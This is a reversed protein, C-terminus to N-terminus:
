KHAPDEDIPVLKFVKFEPTEEATSQIYEVSVVPYQTPKLELMVNTVLTEKNDIGLYDMIALNIKRYDEYKSM